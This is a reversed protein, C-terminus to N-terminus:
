QGRDAVELMKAEEKLDEKKPKYFEKLEKLPEEMMKIMKDLMKIFQLPLETMLFPNTMSDIKTMMELDPILVVLKISYDQILNYKGKVPTPKLKDWLSKRM